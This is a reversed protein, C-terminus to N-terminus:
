KKETKENIEKVANNKLVKGKADIVVEISSEGKKIALEYGTMDPSELLSAEGLKYCAFDKNLTGTVAAPLDKLSVETETELWKGSNDYSASMEKGNMIFEAEWENASENSWKISKAAAFKQSFAKKVPEPADKQGLTILSFGFILILTFVLNKM